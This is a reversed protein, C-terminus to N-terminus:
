FALTDAKEEEILHEKWRSGWLDPVTEEVELISQWSIELENFIDKLTDENPALWLCYRIGKDKNFYTRIWAASEVNALVGWNEEVASWSVSPDNHTVMFRTKFAM